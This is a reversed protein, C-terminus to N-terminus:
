WLDIKDPPEQSVYADWNEGRDMIENYLAIAEERSNCQEHFLVHQPDDYRWSYVFWTEM